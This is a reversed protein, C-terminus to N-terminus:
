PFVQAGAGYLSSDFDAWVLDGSKSHKSDSLLVIIPSAFCPPLPYGSPTASSLARTETVLGTFDTLILLMGLWLARHGVGKTPKPADSLCVMVHGTRKVFGIYVMGGGKQNRVVRAKQSLDLTTDTRLLKVM